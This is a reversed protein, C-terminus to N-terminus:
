FPIEDDLAAGTSTKTSQKQSGGVYDGVSNKDAYQGTKDKQIVLELEGTKDVLDNAMLMGMEYKDALGVTDCLHKLKRPIVELLYDYVIKCQGEANYVNLALKIMENGSTKSVEDTATAIQFSYTGAPWLNMEQIEKETKPKFQM